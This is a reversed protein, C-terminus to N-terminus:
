AERNRYLRRARENIEKRHGERYRLQTAKAKQPSRAVYAAQKLRNCERCSRGDVRRGLNEGAYEHGRPCHTKRANRASVCDSRLTNERPTVAQLHSPRVCAKSVCGRAKVHDIQYGDPIPGVCVEYALRHTGILRGQVSTQGYGGPPAGMWIWCGNVDKTRSLVRSYAATLIRARVPDIPIM